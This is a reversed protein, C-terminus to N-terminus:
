RPGVPVGHRHHRTRGRHPALPWIETSESWRSRSVVTVRRCWSGRCQPTTPVSWKGCGRCQASQEPWRRSSRVSSRATSPCTLATSVIVDQEAGMHPFHEALVADVRESESGAIGFFGNGDVPEGTARVGNRMGYHSAGVGWCRGGGAAWGDGGDRSCRDLVPPRVATQVM